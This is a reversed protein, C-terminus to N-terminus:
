ANGLPVRTGVLARPGPGPGPGSGSGPGFGKEGHNRLLLSSIAKMACGFTGLVM